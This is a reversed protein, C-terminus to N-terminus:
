SYIRYYFTALHESFSFYCLHHNSMAMTVLWAGLFTQQVTYVWNAWTAISRFSTRMALRSPIVLKHSQRQELACPISALDYGFWHDFSINYVCKLMPDIWETSTRNCQEMKCWACRIDPCVNNCSWKLSKKTCFSRTVKREDTFFEVELYKSRSFFFIWAEDYHLFWEKLVSCGQRWNKHTPDRWPSWRCCQAATNAPDEATPIILWM